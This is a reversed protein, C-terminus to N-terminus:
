KHLVLFYQLILLVIKYFCLLVVPCVFFVASTSGFPAQSGGRPVRIVHLWVATTGGQISYKLCIRSYIFANQFIYDLAPKNILFSFTCFICRYRYRKYSSHVHRHQFKVSIESYRLFVPFNESVGSVLSGTMDYQLLNRFTGSHLIFGLLVKLMFM